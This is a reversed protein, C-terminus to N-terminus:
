WNLLGSLNTKPDCFYYSKTAKRMTQSGASRPSGMAEEYPRKFRAIFSEQNKIFSCIDRQMRPNPKCEEGTLWHMIGILEMAKKDNEENDEPNESPLLQFSALEDAYNSSTAM